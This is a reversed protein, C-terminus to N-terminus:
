FRKTSISSRATVARVAANICCSFEYIRVVRRDSLTRVMATFIALSRFNNEIKRKLHLM